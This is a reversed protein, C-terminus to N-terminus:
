RHTPISLQMALNLFNYRPSKPRFQFNNSLFRLKLKVTRKTHDPPIRFREKRTSHVMKFIFVTGQDNPPWISLQHEFIWVEAKGDTKHARTSISIEGQLNFICPVGFGLIM